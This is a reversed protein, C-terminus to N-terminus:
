KNRKKTKKNKYKNNKTKSSLKNFTFIQTGIMGLPLIIKNIVINDYHIM